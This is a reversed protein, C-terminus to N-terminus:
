PQIEIIDGPELPVDVGRLLDETSVAAAQGNRRLVIESPDGPGTFRAAAVARALTLGPTWAVDGNQVQGLVTIGAYPAPTPELLEAAIPAAPATAATAPMASFMSSLPLAMSGPPSLNL